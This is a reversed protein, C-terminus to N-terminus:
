SCYFRYFEGCKATARVRLASALFPIDIKARVPTGVLSVAMADTAIVDVWAEEGVLAVSWNSAVIVASIQREFNRLMLSAHMRCTGMGVSGALEDTVLTWLASGACRQILKALTLDVKETRTAVYAKLSASIAADSPDSIRKRTSNETVAPVGMKMNM